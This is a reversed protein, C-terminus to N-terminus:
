LILKHTPWQHRMNQKEGEWDREGHCNAIVNELRQPIFAGGDEGGLYKLPAIGGTGGLDGGRLSAVM